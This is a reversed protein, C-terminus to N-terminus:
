FMNSLYDALVTRAAKSNPANNLMLVVAHTPANTEPDLRYGAYCIVGTMSGSKLVYPYAGKMFNRVTGEQGVRAFSGIYDANDAMKCLIEGLQRPSIANHRSLGSGDAIRAGKLNVGLDGLIQREKAIAMARPQGPALQRLTAEAMQNDSRVMLSRAIESLKPSPYILITTTDTPQFTTFAPPINTRIEAILHEPPTQKKNKFFNDRWNLAYFGVGDQCDADELEWSPVPGQDPWPAANVVRKYGPKLAKLSAIFGKREKFEKSGLTPDGTGYVLLDGQGTTKVTTKWQFDGGLHHLAAAVTVSKMVSAPTMLIESNYEALPEGDITSIYIGILTQEAGDFDVPPQAYALLPLLFILLRKM